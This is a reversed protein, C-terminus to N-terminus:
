LIRIMLKGGWITLSCEFVWCSIFIYKIGYNLFINILISKLGIDLLAFTFSLLLHPALKQLSLHHGLFFFLDIISSFFQILIWYKYGILGILDIFSGPLFLDISLESYIHSPNVLIEVVSTKHFFFHNFIRIFLVVLSEDLFVHIISM